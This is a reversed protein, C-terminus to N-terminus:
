AAEVSRVGPAPGLARGQRYAAELERLLGGGDGRVRRLSSHVVLLGAATLRAHRRMTAEWDAPALHWAMSDTEHVLRAAPWYADPDALWRGAADVLRCNLLPMPLVDSHAILAVFEAEAVSRAGGAVEALAIRLPRSNRRPASAAAAQLAAVTLLRRQVSEAVLARVAPLSELRVASAIVSEPLALVPLDHRQVAPLPASTRRVVVFGASRV